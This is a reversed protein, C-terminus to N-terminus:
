KDEKKKKYVRFQNEASKLHFIAADLSDYVKRLQLDHSDAVKYRMNMLEPIHKRLSVLFFHCDEKPIDFLKNHYDPYVRDNRIQGMFELM